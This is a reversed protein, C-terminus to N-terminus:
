EGQLTAKCDQRSVPKGVEHMSAVYTLLHSIIYCQKHWYNFFVVPMAFYKRFKQFGIYEWKWNKIELTAPLDRLYM